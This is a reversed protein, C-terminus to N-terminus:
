PRSIRDISKDQLLQIYQKLRHAFSLPAMDRVLVLTAALNIGHVDLLNAFILKKQERIATVWQSFASILLMCNLVLSVVLPTPITSAHVLAVGLAREWQWGPRGGVAREWGSRTVLASVNHVDGVFERSFAFSGTWWSSVLCGVTLARVAMGAAPM